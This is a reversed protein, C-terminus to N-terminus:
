EIDQYAVDEGSGIIIDVWRETAYSALDGKPATSQNSGEGRTIIQEASVGATMLHEKVAQARYQSLVNNYEDTGRPDTHGVLEVSAEPDNRISEALVELIAKGDETLQDSNTEFYVESPLNQILQTLSQQSAQQSSIIAEKMELDEELSVLKGQTIAVQQQAQDGTKIEEGIIAGAMAGAIFGVPGGAIAGLIAGGGFLAGQKAETQGAFSAQASLFFSVSIASCLFIKKM